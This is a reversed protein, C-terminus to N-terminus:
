VMLHKKNNNQDINSFVDNWFKNIYSNLVENTLILEKNLNYTIYKIM